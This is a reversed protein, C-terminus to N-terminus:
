LSPGAAKLPTRVRIKRPLRVIFETHDNPESEVLLQGGHQHVVTDYSLSLGLGTGEGTPKTTFFPTFLKDLVDKTMGVGNDRVRIEVESGIVRTTLVLLPKAAGGAVHGRQRVAYFSNSFLNLFVRTIDQPVIDLQGVAPDLQRELSINFSKDQARAGHYALNLAEELLANLDTLQHDGSGGRSHLLMSKVIGDARRGHEAIKTLNGALTSLTEDLAPREGTPVLSLVSALEVKLEGILESSLSAFNNVFNLPNKIEHAIGATLQGLSAMKEAHVLTQQARRLGALATEAQEKAETLAEERRRIATVFFQLARAMDGIEDSGATDIPAERGGAHALMSDRLAVIRRLISRSVYFFALLALAFAAITAVILAQRYKALFDRYSQTKEELDHRIAEFVGSVASGFQDSIVKNRALMGAVSRQLGLVENRAAFVNENGSVRDHIESHLRHLVTDADGVLGIRDVLQDAREIADAAQKRFAGILPSREVGYTALMLTLATQTEGSWRLLEPPDSQNAQARSIAVTAEFATKRRALDVIDRIISESRADFEIRTGVMDDVRRLNALLNQKTEDLLAITQSDTEDNKFRLLLEDLFRVQDAIRDAATTRTFQDRSVVLGPASAVISESQRALGAADILRPLQTDTLGQFGQRLRDLGFISAAAGGLMVAAVLSLAVVLRFRVGGRFRRPSAHDQDAIMLTKGPGGRVLSAIM